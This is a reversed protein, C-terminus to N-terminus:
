DSNHARSRILLERRRDSVPAMAQIGNVLLNMIV